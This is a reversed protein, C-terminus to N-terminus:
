SYNTQIYRWLTDVQAPDTYGKLAALQIFTENDRLYTKRRSISNEALYRQDPDEIADLVDTDKIGFLDFVANWFPAPEIPLTIPDIPEPEVPEETPPTEPDTIPSYGWSGSVFRVLQGDVNPPPVQETAHAPILFKGPEMPSEDASSSGCYEGTEPHFHFVQM